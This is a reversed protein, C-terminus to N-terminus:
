RIAAGYLRLFEENGKEGHAIRVYALARTRLSAQLSRSELVRVTERVFDRANTAILCEVGHHVALGEVGLPTTVVPLGASLATLAKLRLGGGMRFPLIFVDARALFPALDKQFGHVFVNEQGSPAYRPGPRGVVHFEVNPIKQRIKPLMDHTFWEIADENPPWGLVGVFVITPNRHSLPNVTAAEYVLPQVSVHHIGFMARLRKAEPRSIAFVHDFKRLARFEFLYTLIMEMFLYVKRAMKTTHVFRTWYLYTEGNHHELIWRERKKKPLYQAMNLHDVHIVDPKFTEVLRAIYPFAPAHTYQFVYHPVGRLFHLALGWLDDKVSALVTNSHFVKVTIGWHALEKIDAPQAYEESIFVASVTYKPSLAKLTNLTKIRGGSVPPYPYLQSIYLLRKKM